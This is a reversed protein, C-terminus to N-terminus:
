TNTEKESGHKLKPIDKKSEEFIQQNHRAASLYMEYIYIHAWICAHYPFSLFNLYIKPEEFDHYSERM